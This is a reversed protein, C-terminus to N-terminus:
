EQRRNEIISDYLLDLQEAVAAISIKEKLDDEAIADKAKKINETNTYYGIAKALDNIDTPNEIVQGHKGDVFLDAAGNFRTTIVPREAALAEIIYRSSPDYFTPLVAVDTISLANQIHRIKGLFIIRKQVNYKKAQHRFEMAKGGGAVVLYAPRATKHKALQAMAKILPTLGKLRFNNAVFLLLVPDDGEKLNLQALIQARLTDAQIPNVQKNIKIGNTIVTIRSEDLKYHEKFQQAVYQSLATVVPGTPNQCLKKEARLLATRRLNAFATLRKYSEIFNNEYSAANRRVSETYSGGRPQYLDAFDFPLASHIIDYNKNSLHKKIAKAFAHHCTRKGGTDGCLIHINKTNTQGKAALIDVEHGLSILATSLEFVSREAGGLTIDAREIIIAIKKKM